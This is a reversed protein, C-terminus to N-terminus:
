QQNLMQLYTMSQEEDINGEMKFLNNENGYYKYRNQQLLRDLLVLFDNQSLAANVNDVIADDDSILGYNKAKEIISDYNEKSPEELCRVMFALCEKVTVERNPFFFFDTNKLTHTSRYTPSDVECEEGYAIKGKYACGEYSYANTDAFAYFGNGALFAVDEDTVGIVRMIAIICEERSVTNPNLFGSEDLINLQMLTDEIESNNVNDSYVNIMGLLYIILITIAIVKRM